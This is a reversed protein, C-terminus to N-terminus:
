TQGRVMSNGPHGGPEVVLVKTKSKRTCHIIIEVILCLVSLLIGMLLLGLPFYFHEIRLPEPEDDPDEEKFFVEAAM